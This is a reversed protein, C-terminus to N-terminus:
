QRPRCDSVIVFDHVRTQQRCTQLLVGLVADGEAFVLTQISGDRVADFVASMPLLHRSQVVRGPLDSISDASIGPLRGSVVYLRDDALYSSEVPVRRNIEAGIEELQQWGSPAQLWLRTPRVLDLAFICVLFGVALHPSVRARLGLLCTGAAASIAVFPCALLFYHPFTPRALAAGITLGLGLSSGLVIAPAWSPVQLAACHRRWAFGVVALPVLIIGEALYGLGAIRLIDDRLAYAQGGSLGGWARGYHVHYAVIDFWALAPSRSSLWLAPLSAVMLGALFWVTARLRRGAPACRMLWIATVPAAPAALLCCSIAAGTCLGSLFSSRSSGATVKLAFRYGAVLLFATVTYPMALTAFRVVLGNLGVFLVAVAPATSMWASSAIRPKLAGAALLASGLALLANLLHANRWGGNTLKMWAATLYPYLPTQQYFFDAYPRQGALIRRAALLHYGEDAFYTVRSVAVLTVAAAAVLLWQVLSSRTTSSDEPRM